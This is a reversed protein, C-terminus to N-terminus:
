AKVYDNLYSKIEDKLDKKRYVDVVLKNKHVYPKGLKNNKWKEFFQNFYEKEVWVFPGYHRKAKSVNLSEFEFFLFKDDTVGYSYIDWGERDLVKILQKMKKLLKAKTVNFDSNLGDKIKYKILKTGRRNSRETVLGIKLGRIKFLKLMPEKLFYKVRFLFESFASYSVSAAANREPLLPDVIILPGRIKSKKMKQLVKKPEKYHKEIDIIVKPKASEMATLLKEFSKYHIILLETVYGSFGGRASESGYVENAKLFQKLLLVEKKLKPNRAYYNKLYNIHFYSIDASNKAKKPSEYKVSPIIEIDFSKYKFKYYDRTGHILKLDKFNPKVIRKYYKEIDKESEFRMFFDLDYNGNMSTGRSASGGLLVQVKIKLKKANLELNRIIEASVKELKKLEKRDPTVRRLVKKLVQKM